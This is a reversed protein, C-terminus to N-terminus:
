ENEVIEMSVVAGDGGDMEFRAYGPLAADEVFDGYGPWIGTRECEAMRILADDILEDAYALADAPVRYPKSLYPWSKEQAFLVFDPASGGTALAYVRRYFAAQIHYGYTWISKGFVAPAASTTTKGDIILWMGHHLYDPRCKLMLGTRPCTAFISQEAVWGAGSGVFQRWWPSAHAAARMAVLEAYEAPKLPINGAAEIEAFLQKGEKTRRDIGEPLCIYDREFREPEFLATHWATGTLMAATPQREPRDPHRYEAYYRAPCDMFARIGSSGIAPHSHYDTNNM